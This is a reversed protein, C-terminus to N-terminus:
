WKNSFLPQYWLLCAPKPLDAGYLELNSEPVRSQAKGSGVTGEAEPFLIRDEKKHLYTFM